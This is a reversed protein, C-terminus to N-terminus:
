CLALAAVVLATAPPSLSRRPADDRQAGGTDPETPRAKCTNVSKFKGVLRPPLATM